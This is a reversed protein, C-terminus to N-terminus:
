KMSDGWYLHSLLQPHFITNFFASVFKTPFRPDGQDGLLSGIKRTIVRVVHPDQLMRLCDATLVNIKLVKNLAQLAVVRGDDERDREDAKLQSLNTVGGEMTRVSKEVMELTDKM